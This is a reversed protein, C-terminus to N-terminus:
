SSMLVNVRFSISLQIGWFYVLGSCPIGRPIYVACSRFLLTVIGDTDVTGVAYM